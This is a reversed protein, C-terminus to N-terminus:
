EKPKNTAGYWIYQQLVNLAKDDIITMLELAQQKIHLHYDIGDVNNWLLTVGDDVSMIIADAFNLTIAM